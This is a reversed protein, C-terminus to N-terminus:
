DENPKVENGEVYTIPLHTLETDSLMMFALSGDELTVQKERHKERNSQLISQKAALLWLLFGNSADVQIMADLYYSELEGDIFSLLGENLLFARKAEETSQEALQAVQQDYKAIVERIDQVTANSHNAIAENVIETRAYRGINIFDAGIETSTAAYLTDFQQELASQEVLKSKQAQLKELLSATLATKPAFKLQLEIKKWDKLETVTPIKQVTKHLMSLWKLRHAVFERNEHLYVQQLQQEAQELDENSYAVELAEWASVKAQIDQLLKEDDIKETTTTSIETNTHENTAVTTSIQSFDFENSM